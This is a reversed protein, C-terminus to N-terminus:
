REGGVVVRRSSEDRQWTTFDGSRLARQARVRAALAVGLFVPVKPALAPRALTLRALTRWSTAADRSRVGARDAQANGTAVRVRQRVLGALRRPPHVRVWADEVVVREHAAFAESAVLDDAMMAPLEDLRAQGQESLAVVGRGFLGSSVQPLRQWVDYYWRVPRSCGDLALVRRPATALATGERLPAVLSRLQSGPLVVDADLHVRPYTTCLASGLRMAEAKSPRPTELVRAEPAAERARRATDDTGGNSVVVIELEGPRWGERLHVLCRGITAEEDHAPIVVSAWVAVARGAQRGVDGHVPSVAM